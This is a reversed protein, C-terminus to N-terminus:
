TVAVLRGATYRARDVCLHRQIMSRYMYVTEICCEYLTHTRVSVCICVRVCSSCVCVNIIGKDEPVIVGIHFFYVIKKIIIERASSSGCTSIVAYIYACLTRNTFNILRARVGCACETVRFSVIKHITHYYQTCGQVNYSTQM